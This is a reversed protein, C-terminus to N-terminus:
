GRSVAQTQQTQVSVRSARDTICGNTDNMDHSQREARDNRGKISGYTTLRETFFCEALYLGLVILIAEGM